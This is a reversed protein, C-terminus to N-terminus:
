GLTTPHSFKKFKNSVSASPGSAGHYMIATWGPSDIPRFPQNTAKAQLTTPRRGQIRYQLVWGTPNRTTPVASQANKPNIKATPLKVHGDPRRVRRQLPGAGSRRPIM